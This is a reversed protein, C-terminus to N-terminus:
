FLATPDAVVTIVSGNGASGASANTAAIPRSSPVTGGAGGNGFSAGGAGGGFALQDSVLTANTGASGGNDHLTASNSIAPAILIVAGGGGGGGPAYNVSGSGGSGGYVDFSSTVSATISSKSALVIIGGAGGGSGASGPYPVASINGNNVISGACLIKLNGGGAGGQGSSAGGGGGGLNSNILATPGLAAGSLGLTILGGRIIAAASGLEGNMANVFGAGPHASRSAATYVNTSAASNLYGGYSGSLITLNGNNNNIFNGTCRLISGSPVLLQAGSDITINTYQTNIDTLNTVGTIHLAGASGDGYIKLQGDAGTAGTAGAAGTAGTEGIGTAGQPGTFTSSDTILSYGSPCKVTSVKRTQISLKGKKSVIKSCLLEASVTRTSLSIALLLFFIKLYYKM